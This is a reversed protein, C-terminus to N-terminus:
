LGMDNNIVLHVENSCMTGKCASLNTYISLLNEKSHVNWKIVNNM